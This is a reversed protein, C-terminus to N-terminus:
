KIFEEEQLGVFIEDGWQDDLAKSKHVTGEGGV